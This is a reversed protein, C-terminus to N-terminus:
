PQEEFHVFAGDIGRRPIGPRIKTLLECAPVSDGNLRCRQVDNTGIVDLSECGRHLWVQAPLAVQALAIVQSSPFMARVLTGSATMLLGGCGDPAIDCAVIRDADRTDIRTAAAAESAALRRWQFGDGADVGLTVENPATNRACLLREGDAVLHAIVIGQEGVAMQMAGERSWFFMSHKPGRLVGCVPQPYSVTEGAPLLHVQTGSWGIWRMADLEEVVPACEQALCAASSLMAPALWRWRM